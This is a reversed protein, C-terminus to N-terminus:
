SPQTGCGTKLRICSRLLLQQGRAGDLMDQWLSSTQAALQQALTLKVAVRM